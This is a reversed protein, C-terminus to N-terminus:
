FISAIMITRSNEGLIDKLLWTLTSDRHPVFKKKLGLCFSIFYDHLLYMNLTLHRHQKFYARKFSRATNERLTMCPSLKSKVTQLVKRDFVAM